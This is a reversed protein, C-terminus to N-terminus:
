REVAEDRQAEQRIDQQTEMPSFRSAIEQTNERSTVMTLSHEEKDYRYVENSLVEEPPVEAQNINMVMVQLDEATLTGTDSLLILEHISSPLIFFSTESNKAITELVEPYLMATAGWTESENNLVYMDGPNMKMEDGKMAQFDGIGSAHHIMDLMDILQFPHNKITNALAKEYLEEQSVEWLNLMANKVLFTADSNVWVRCVATLNTNELDTHPSNELLDKNAEKDILQLQLGEKVQSYDKLDISLLNELTEERTLYIDIMEAAISDLSSGEQYMKYYDDMNFQPAVGDKQKPVISAMNLHINNNKLITHFLVKASKSHEPMLEGIKEEIGKLFQKFDM